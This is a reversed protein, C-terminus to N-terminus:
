NAKLTDSKRYNHCYHFLASHCLPIYTNKTSFIFKIGLDAVVQQTFKLLFNAVKLRMKKIQLTIIKSLGRESSQKSLYIAMINSQTHLVNTPRKNPM